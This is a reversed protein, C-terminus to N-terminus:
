FNKILNMKAHLSMLYLYEIRVGLFEKDFVDKCTFENYEYVM